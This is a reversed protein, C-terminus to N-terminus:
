VVDTPLNMGIIMREGTMGCIVQNDIGSTITPGVFRGIASDCPIVSEIFTETNCLKFEGILMRRRIRYDYSACLVVTSLLEAVTGSEIMRGVTVASSRSDIMGSWAIDDM